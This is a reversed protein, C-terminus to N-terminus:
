KLSLEDSTINGFLSEGSIELNEIIGSLKFKIEEPEIKMKLPLELSGQLSASGQLNKPKELGYNKEFDSM